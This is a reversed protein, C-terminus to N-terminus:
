TGGAVLIIVLAVGESLALTWGAYTLLGVSNSKEAIHRKKNEAKWEDYLRQKEQESVKFQEETAKTISKQVKFAEELTILKDDALKLDEDARRLDADIHLLEKFQPLSYGMYTEGAADSILRGEPLRYVTYTADQALTVSALSIASLFSLIRLFTM